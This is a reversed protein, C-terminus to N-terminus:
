DRGDANRLQRELAAQELWVRARTRAIAERQRVLAGQQRDLTGQVRELEEENRLLFAPLEAKLVKARDDLRGERENM